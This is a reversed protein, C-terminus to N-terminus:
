QESDQADLQLRYRRVLEELDARAREEEALRQQLERAQQRVLSSPALETGDRDRVRVLPRGPQFAVDLATSHWWGDTGPTWPAYIGDRLRWAMLPEPLVSGDPDFVIYEAVGIAAYARKKDGQDNSKTSDSAMEAIFLPAGVQDLRVSALSGSVLPHRLVMVDPKPDYSTGDEHRLGILAIWECVGWAAGRRAAVDCLMDALQMSAEQHWQTGVVSEETDSALANPVRYTTTWTATQTM